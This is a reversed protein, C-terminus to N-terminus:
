GIEVEVLNKVSYQSSYQQPEMDRVVDHDIVSRIPGEHYLPKGDLEYALIVEEKYQEAKDLDLPEPSHYGDSGKFLFTSADSELIGEEKLISWLSVGSYIYTHSEVRTVVEFEKDIVQIYKDSKIDSMTLELEKTVKGTITVLVEEEIDEDGIYTNINKSVYEIPDIDLRYYNYASLWFVSIIICMSAVLIKFNRKQM